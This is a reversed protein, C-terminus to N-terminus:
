HVNPSFLLYRFLISTGFYQLCTQLITCLHLIELDHARFIHDNKNKNEQSIYGDRTNSNILGGRSVDCANESM